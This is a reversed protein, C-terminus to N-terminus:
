INELRRTDIQYQHVTEIVKNTFLETAARHASSDPDTTILKSELHDSKLDLFCNKAWEKENGFTKEMPVTSTCSGSMINCQGDESSHFGHKSCLKNINELTIVQKKPTM